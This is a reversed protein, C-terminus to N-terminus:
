PIEEEVSSLTALPWIYTRGGVLNLQTSEAEPSDAADNIVLRRWVQYTGGLVEVRRTARPKVVLWVDDSVTNSDKPGDMPYLAVRWAHDTHNEIVVVAFSSTGTPTSCGIAAFLMVLILAAWVLASALVGAKAHFPRRRAPAGILSSPLSTM